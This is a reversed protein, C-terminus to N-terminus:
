TVARVEVRHMDDTFAACSNAAIGQLCRIHRRTDRSVDPNDWHLRADPDLRICSISLQIRMINYFTLNTEYDIHSRNVTHWIAVSIM